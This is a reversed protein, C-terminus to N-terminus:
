KGEGLEESRRAAALVANMVAGRMGGAELAHVAAITTGGPSTVQDKLAGPHEGTEQACVRM